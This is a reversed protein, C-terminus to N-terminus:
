SLNIGRSKLDRYLRTVLQAQIHMFDNRVGLKLRNASSLIVGDNREELIGQDILANIRRRATELPIQTARSVAARSIGRRESDPEIQGAYKSALLPDSDIHSVNASGVALALLIDMPDLNAGSTARMLDGMMNLLFRVANRSIVKAREAAIAKEGLLEIPSHLSAKSLLPFFDAATALRVIEHIDILTDDPHPPAWDFYTSLTVIGNEDPGVPVSISEFFYVQKSALLTERTNRLIHGDAVREAREIREPMVETATIVLWDQGVELNSRAIRNLDSGIYTMIASGRRPLTVNFLYKEHDPLASPLFDAIRPINSGRCARFWLDVFKQSAPSFGQLAIFQQTKEVDFQM